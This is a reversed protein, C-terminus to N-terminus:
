GLLSVLGTIQSPTRQQADSQEAQFRFFMDQQEGHVMADGVSPRILDTLPFQIDEIAGEGAASRRREGRQGQLVGIISDPLPVPKLALNQRSLQRVPLM